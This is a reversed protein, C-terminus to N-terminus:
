VGVQEKSRSANSSAWFYLGAEKQTQKLALEIRSAYPYFRATFFLPVLLLLMCHNLGPVTFTNKSTSFLFVRAFYSTNHIFPSVTYIIMPFFLLKTKMGPKSGM